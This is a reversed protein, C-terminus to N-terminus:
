PRHFNFQAHYVLDASPAVGGGPTFRLWYQKGAAITWTGTLAFSTVFHDSNSALTLQSAAVAAKTGAGDTSWLEGTITNNNSTAKDKIIEWRTLIDGVQLGHIPIIILNASAAILFHDETRTHSGSLDVMDLVPTVTTVDATFHLGATARLDTGQLTGTITAGAPMLAAGLAAGYYGTTVALTSDMTIAGSLAGDSLYQCWEYALEFFWNVYQAAGREGPTFGIDKKGSTPATVAGTITGPSTAAWRPTAAPKTSM